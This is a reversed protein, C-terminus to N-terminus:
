SGGEARRPFLRSVPGRLMDGMAGTFLIVLAQITLIMEKTVGPMSFALEQGGQYLTGFLLASLGVGVPHGKGMFAVAIGVFGAGNVFNMILRGQVGGVNNLAVLGAVAGSLAMAMIIMKENSIGGYRAATPNQGITRLAYGFKTHWLLLYVLGLTILAIFITLNAPSNKFMPIFDGLQPVRTIAELPASEDSQVGDPKLLRSIVYSMLSIAIFNFMITTIVVHSGRKAQLYGPIAAWIAGFIGGAILMLPLMILWHTGNLALGMLIVGLGAVYSQGEVGINFLGAHYAISVALGAFIFNTTYYLTYGFGSGNGFAGYLIVWVAQLPNQGVSLVIVGGILFALFVNLVPLLAVEAWRPLEGRM